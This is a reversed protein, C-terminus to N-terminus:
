PTPETPETPEANSARRARGSRPTLHVRKPLRETELSQGITDNAPAALDTLRDVMGLAFLVTAWTGMAVRSDGHEIRSVTQRTTFAREAVIELPLRRRRRAACLDAGLTVLARRVAVPIAAHSRPM